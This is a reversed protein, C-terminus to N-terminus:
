SFTSQFYAAFKCPGRSPQKQRIPNLVLPFSNDSLILYQFNTFSIRNQMNLSYDQINVFYTRVVFSAFVITSNSWENLSQLTLFM